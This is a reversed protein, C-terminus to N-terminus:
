RSASALPKTSTAAAAPGAQAWILKLRALEEDFRQNIRKTEDGQDAIFRKQVQVSRDNDDVRRKLAFPAKSPDKKYFEMEVDITKRDEGLESIRKNAARIVEQVQSLADNREKDHAARNPYRSILARDRRKEENLRAQKEDEIKQKEEQAARERATLTPGVVRKTTGSNTLERQERDICEPIPRDSTLKRGKADVCTYIGAQAFATPVAALQALAALVLGAALGAMGLRRQLGMFM